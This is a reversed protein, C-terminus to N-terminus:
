SCPRGAWPPSPNRRPPSSRPTARACDSRRASPTAFRGEGARTKRSINGRSGPEGHIAAGEEGSEAGSGDGGWEERLEAGGFVRRDGGRGREDRAELRRDDAAAEFQGIMPDPAARRNAALVALVMEERRTNRLGDDEVRVPEEHRLDDAGFGVRGDPGITEGLDRERRAASIEEVGAARVIGMDALDAVRVQQEVHARGVVAGRRGRLMLLDPARRAVEGGPRAFADAEGGALAHAAGPFAEIGRQELRAGALPIGDGGGIGGEARQGVAREQESVLRALFVEAVELDADGVRRVVGARPFALGRRPKEAALGRVDLIREEPIFVAAHLRQHLVHGALNAALFEAANVDGTRVPDVPVEVAGREGVAALEAPAITAGRLLSEEFARLEEDLVAHGVCRKQAVASPGPRSRLSAVRVQFATMGRALGDHFQGDERGDERARKCEGGAGEGGVARRRRARLALGGGFGRAFRAQGPPALRFEAHEDVPPEVGQRGAFPLALAVGADALPDHVLRADRDRVVLLEGPLEIRHLEVGVSPRLEGLVGAHLVQHM